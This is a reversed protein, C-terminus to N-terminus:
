PYCRAIGDSNILQATLFDSYFLIFLFPSFSRIFMVNWIYNALTAQSFYSSGEGRLVMHVYFMLQLKKIQYHVTILQLLNHRKKRPLQAREYNLFNKFNNTRPFYKPKLTNRSSYLLM